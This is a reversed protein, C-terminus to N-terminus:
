KCWCIFVITAKFITKALTEALRIRVVLRGARGSTSKTLIFIIGDEASIKEPLYERSMLM